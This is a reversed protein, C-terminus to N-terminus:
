KERRWLIRVRTERLYYKGADAAPETHPQIQDQRLPAETRAHTKIGPFTPKSAAVIGVLIEASTVGLLRNSRDCRADETLWPPLRHNPYFAKTQRQRLGADSLRMTLRRSDVTVKVDHRLNMTFAERDTATLTTSVAGIYRTDQDSPALSSRYGKAATAVNKSLAPRSKSKSVRRTPMAAAVLRRTPSNTKPNTRQRNTNLKAQPHKCRSQRAMEADM